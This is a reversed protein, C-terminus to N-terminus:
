IGYFSFRFSPYSVSILEYSPNNIFRSENTRRVYFGESDSLINLMGFFAPSQGSLDSSRGDFNFIIREDNIRNITFLVLLRTGANTRFQFYNVFEDPIIGETNFSIDLRSFDGALGQNLFNDSTRRLFNGSSSDLYSYYEFASSTGFENVDSSFLTPNLDASDTLLNYGIVTTVGSDTSTYVGNTADYVFNQIKLDGVVFPDVFKFGESTNVIPLTLSSINGSTDDYFSVVARRNPFDLFTFTGNSVIENDASTVIFNRLFDSTMFGNELSILDDRGSIINLEDEATAKTFIIKSADKSSDSKSRFEIQNESVVEFIFEFEANLGFGDVEFMRHFVTYNEFVLEPFQGIGVRYTTELDSIGQNFDSVLKVLGNEEFDMFVNFVGVEGDPRYATKWGFEADVLTNKYEELTSNVREDITENFLPAVDVEDTCGFLVAFIIISFIINKKM